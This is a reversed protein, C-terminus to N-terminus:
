KKRGKAKKGKASTAPNAEAVASATAHWVLMREEAEGGLRLLKAPRSPTPKHLLVKAGLYPDSSKEADPHRQEFINEPWLPRLFWKRYSDHPGYCIAICIYHHDGLLITKPSVLPKGGPSLKTASCTGEMDGLTLGFAELPEADPDRRPADCASCLDAEVWSCPKGTKEVCESCDDDTCGCVRCRQALADPADFRIPEPDDSSMTEVADSLEVLAHTDLGFTEGKLLGDALEGCTTVGAQDLLEFLEPKGDLADTIALTRWSPPSTEATAESDRGSAESKADSSATEPPISEAPDALTEDPPFLSPQRQANVAADIAENLTEIAEEWLQKAAKLDSKVSEVRGEALRVQERAAAIAQMEPMLKREVKVDYGITM